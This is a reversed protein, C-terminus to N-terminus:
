YRGTVSLAWQTEDRHFFVVQDLGNMRVNSPASADGQRLTLDIGVYKVPWYDLMLYWGWAQAWNTRASAASVYDERSPYLKAYDTSLGAWVSLAGITDPMDFVTYEAAVDLNIEFQPNMGGALGGQEAYHYFYWYADIDFGVTLADLPNFRTMNYYRLITYLGDKSYWEGISDDYRVSGFPIYGRVFHYFSLERDKWYGSEKDIFDVPVSHFYAFGIGMNGSRLGSQGEPVSYHQNASWGVQLSLNPVQEKIFYWDARASLTLFRDNGPQDKRVVLQAYELAARLKIPLAQQTVKVDALAGSAPMAKSTPNEPLVPQASTAGINQAPATVPQPQAAEIPAATVTHYTEGTPTTVPAATPAAPPSAIPRTDTGADAPPAAPPAAPHAVSQGAETAADVPATPQALALGAILLLATM